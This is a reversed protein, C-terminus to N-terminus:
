AKETTRRTRWLFLLGWVPLVLPVLLYDRGYWFWVSSKPFAAGDFASWTGVVLVGVLEAAMAVVAVRRWGPTDKILAITILVYVVAAVASLTYPLPATSFKTALEFLVRSTAGIALIAYIVVLARGAGHKTSSASPSSSVTSSAASTAEASAPAPEVPDAM